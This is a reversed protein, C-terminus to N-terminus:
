VGRPTAARALDRDDRGGRTDVVSKTASAHPAPVAPTRSNVREVMSLRRLLQAAEHRVIGECGPALQSWAGFTTEYGGEAYAEDTPVYGVTEEAFGVICTMAFPSQERIALATEAFPEGPLFVLAADGLSLAALEASRQYGVDVGRPMRTPLPVRQRLLSVEVGGILTASALAGSTAHFLSEAHRRAAAAGASVGRPNINGAAGNLFITQAGPHAAELMECLEGPFDSSVQPICMEYVPHCTANVVLAVVEGAADRFSLVNVSDDVAGDRSLVTNVPPEPHSMHIGGTTKIRRHVTLGPTTNSGRYARCPRRVQAAEAIAKGIQSALLETWGQFASTEHLKTIAGSEPASHTHTCALVIQEPLVAREAAESIRNKFDEFGGVATGALALLDLSVIATRAGSKECELVLARASLQTRVGEFAAWRGEVSSMLLGVELPPTIDAAAAGANIMQESM